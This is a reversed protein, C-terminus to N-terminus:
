LLYEALFIGTSLLSLNILCRLVNSSNQQVSQMLISLTGYAILWIVLAYPLLLVCLFAIFCLVLAEILATPTAINEPTNFSLNIQQLPDRYILYYPQYNNQVMGYCCGEAICGIRTIAHAMVFCASAINFFNIVPLHYFYCYLLLLLAVSIVSAYLALGTRRFIWSAGTSLIACSAVLTFSLGQALAFIIACGSGLFFYLIFININFGNSMPLIAQEPFFWNLIVNSTKQWYEVYPKSSLLLYNNDIHAHWACILGCIIILMIKAM